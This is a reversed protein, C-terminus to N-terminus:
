KPLPLWSNFSLVVLRAVLVLILTRRTFFNKVDYEEFKDLLVLTDLMNRSLRSIKWVLVAQFKRKEVDTIMRQMAPRGKIDKGSIGEDIYEDIVEWGYLNAYQRLTQKQASISYGESAQEETSVRCYIAVQKIENILIGGEM